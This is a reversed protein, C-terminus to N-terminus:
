THEKSIMEKVLCVELLLQKRWRPSMNLSPLGSYAWGDCGHCYATILCVLGTTMAAVISLCWSFSMLSM